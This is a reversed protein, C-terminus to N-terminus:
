AGARWGGEVGAMAEELGDVSAAGKNLAAWLTRLADIPQGASAGALADAPCRATVRAGKPWNPHSPNLVTPLDEGVRAADGSRILLLQGNQAEPSLAAARWAKPWLWALTFTGGAAATGWVMSWGAVPGDLITATEAGSLRRALAKLVKGAAWGEHKHNLLPLEGHQRYFDNLLGIEAIESDRLEGVSADDAKKYWCSVQLEPKKRVVAITNFDNLRILAPHGGKVLQNLRKHGGQGIYLVRSDDIARAPAINDCWIKYVFTGSKPCSAETLLTWGNVVTHEHAM